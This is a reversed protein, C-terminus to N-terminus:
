VFTLLPLLRDSLGILFRFVPLGAVALVVLAILAWGGYRGNLERYRRALEKPLLWQLVYHGDLPGLPLLNFLMLLLNIRALYLFFASAAPDALLPLDRSMGLVLLNACLVALVLNAFPGALAVVAQAWLHRLRAPSVPVPRAYGFGVVIVMLLGMPDIHALPNLTLRGHREATDDGLLKASAAHGFEHFALSLVIAALLLAFLGIEGQTLLGIM